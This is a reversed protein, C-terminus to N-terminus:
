PEIRLRADFGALRALDPDTFQLVREATFEGRTLKDFSSISSISKGHETKLHAPFLAATFTGPGALVDGISYPENYLMHAAGGYVIFLSERPYHARYQKLTALWIANRLRKGETSAWINQRLHIHGPTHFWLDSPHQTRVFQPDLGVVPIREERATEWVPLYSKLPTDQVSKGWVKGNPLFETFLVIPRRPYRQRLEHLLVSMQAQIPAFDHWEGVLLYSTHNKVEGALWGMDQQPLLDFSKKTAHFQPIHAIIRRRWLEARPIEQVLGRNHCALFYKTIQNANRLFRAAPYLDTAPTKIKPSILKSPGTNLLAMTQPYRSMLQEARQYSTAVHKRLHNTSSAPLQSITLEVTPKPTQTAGRLGRSANRLPAQGYALQSLSLLLIFLAAYQKVM